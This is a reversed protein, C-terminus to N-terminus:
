ATVRRTDYHIYGIPDINRGLVVSIDCDGFLGKTTHRFGSIRPRKEDVKERETNTAGRKGIPYNASAM